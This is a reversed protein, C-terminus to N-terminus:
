YTLVDGRTLMFLDHDNRAIIKKLEFHSKYFTIQLIIFM